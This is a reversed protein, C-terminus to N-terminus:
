VPKNYESQVSINDATSGYGQIDVTLPLHCRVGIYCIEIMRVDWVEKVSFLCFEGMWGCVSVEAHPRSSSPVSDGIKQNTSM